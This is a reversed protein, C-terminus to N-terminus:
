SPKLGKPLVAIDGTRWVSPFSALRAFKCFITTIKPAIINVTNQFFFFFTPLIENLEIGGYIDLELLLSRDERSRFAVSCLKPEHFCYQPM